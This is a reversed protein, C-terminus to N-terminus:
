YWGNEYASEYMALINEPPVNVQINHISAFIYGGGPAFFELNKKVSERVEDPTGKALVGHPDCGGGWFTIDKGFERKLYAPDMGKASIQVPNLIDVGMEIFDPILESVAGCSHFFIKADTKKKIAQMIRAHRPKYIKRFIEPNFLLGNQHGMDDSTYVVHAYQGIYDLVNDWFAITWEEVLSALYDAIEPNIVMDQYLEEIGRLFYSWEFVGAVPSIIFIPYDTNNYLEQAAEKLGKTRGPDCPDPPRYRKIEAFDKGKLPNSAFDYYFGGPPMHYTIGWEDTWSNDEQNIQLSWGESPKPKLYKVGAHFMDLIRQDPVVVYQFMDIIEPERYPLKLYELLKKHTFYHLTCGIGGLDIPVRDPESHSLAKILRERHTMKESPM